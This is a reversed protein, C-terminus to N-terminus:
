LQFRKLLDVLRNSIENLEKATTSLESIKETQKYSVKNVDNVNEIVIKSNRSMENVSGAVEESSASVDEINSSVQQMENSVEKISVLINNFMEGALHVVESGIEVEKQGKEMYGTTTEMETKINEILKSIENASSKSSEALKRVEEAVVAFGKGQEGARAAEISANLALLNTQEAISSIVDVIKVIENSQIGLTQVKQSGLTVINKIDEMQNEVKQIVESGKVSKEEVEKNTNYVERSSESIKQISIAMEEMTKSIEENSSGQIDTLNVVNNITSYNEESLKNSEFGQRLLLDSTEKLKTQTFMLEELIEKLYDNMINTSNSLETLEDKTQINLPKLKLNGRGIEGIHSSLKIIPNSIKYSQFIAFGWSILIALFTILSNRISLDKINTSLNEKIKYVDENGKNMIIEREQDTKANIIEEYHNSFVLTKELQEEYDEVVQALSIVWLLGLGFMLIALVGYGGFLKSQISKRKIPLIMKLIFKLKEM